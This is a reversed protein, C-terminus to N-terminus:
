SPARAGREFPVVNDDSGHLIMLPRTVSRCLAEVAEKDPLGSDGGDMTLILTEPDHRPGM